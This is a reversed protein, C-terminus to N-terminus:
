RRRTPPITPPPAPVDDVHARLVEVMCQSLSASLFQSAQARIAVSLEVLDTVQANTLPKRTSLKDKFLDVHEAFRPIFGPIEIQGAIGALQEEMGEVDVLDDIQGTLMILKSLVGADHCGPQGTTANAM